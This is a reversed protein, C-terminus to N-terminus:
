PLRGLAIDDVWLAGGQPRFFVGVRIREYPLVTTFQKTFQQWDFDGGRPVNIWYKRKTGNTRLVEVGLAAPGAFVNEGRIMASLEFSEGAEGGPLNTYFAAYHNTTGTLHLACNGTFADLPNCTWSTTSPGAAVLKWGRPSTSGDEFSINPLLNSCAEPALPLWPDYNVDPGVSDGTGPGVGSPGSADGWWNNTANLTSTDDNVVATDSNRVICSQNISAVSSFVLIGGGQGIGDVGVIGDPTGIGASGGNGPLTTNDSLVVGNLTADAGRFEIGGGTVSGGDGGNGGMEAAPADGGDGGNGGRAVNNRIITGNHILITPTPALYDQKGAAIGGGEAIGGLWGDRTESTGGDIGHGGQGGYASNEAVEVGDLTLDGHSLIGGGIAIGGYPSGTGTVIPGGAGGQATNSSVSGGTFTLTGKNYIGGGYAAGGAKDVSGDNGQALNNSVTVDTLTLDATTHFDPHGHAIGGGYAGRRHAGYAANDLVDSNTMTSPTRFFVGGGIVTGWEGAEATNGQITTDVVDNTDFLLALGGGVADPPYDVPEALIGIGAAGSRALNGDNVNPGGILTELFDSENGFGYIGGGNAEGGTGANGDGSAGTGANGGDGGLAQNGTIVSYEVLLWDCYLCLVGGGVAPGGIRGDGAPDGDAGDAGNAGIAMNDSVTSGYLTLPGYSAVGGGLAYPAYPGAGNDVGAQATNETM